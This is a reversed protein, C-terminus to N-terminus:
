LIKGYLFMQLKCLTRLNPPRKRHLFSTLTPLSLGIRSSLDTMSSPTSALIEMVDKRIKKELEHKNMTEYM